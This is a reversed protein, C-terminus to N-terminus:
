PRKLKNINVKQVNSQGEDAFRPRAQEEIGQEAALERERTSILGFCLRMDDVTEKSLPHVDGPNTPATERAIASLVKRMTVLIQQEKSLNDWDM